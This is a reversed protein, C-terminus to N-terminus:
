YVSLCSINLNFYVHIYDNSVYIVFMNNDLYLAIMICNEDVDANIISTLTQSM